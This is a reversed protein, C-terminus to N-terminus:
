TYKIFYFLGKYSFFNSRLNFIFKWNKYFNIFNLVNVKKLTSGLNM